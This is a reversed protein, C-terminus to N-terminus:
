ETYLVGDIMTGKCRTFNSFPHGNYFALDADKGVEISGIRGALGLLEAPYITLAKFADEEPMGYAICKGADILLDETQRSDDRTLCVKIGAMTLKAPTSWDRQWLERKPTGMNLPGVVCTVQNDRLTKAIYPGGGAHELAYKLNFEKAIRIATAMDDSRHCHIRCRVKGRVVPVMAQLGMDWHEMRREDDDVAKLKESYEKAEFLLERMLAASGMRSFPAKNRKYGYANTPNEGLAMKMVTTGPIAMEDVTEEPRLKCCFGQGGCVNASGPLVCVTTFGARRTINIDEDQTNFSDIVRLQPSVPDSYENIDSTFIRVRPENRLALHTHADIMGPTIWCTKKDIVTAGDFRQEGRYIGEIKGNQILITSIEMPEGKGEYIKGIVAIRNNM